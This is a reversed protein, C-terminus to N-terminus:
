LKIIIILGQVKPRLVDGDGVSDLAVTALPPWVPMAHLPGPSITINEVQFVAEPTAELSGLPDSQSRNQSRNQGVPGIHLPGIHLPGLSIIINEVESRSPSTRWRAARALPPGPFVAEPTAEPAGLHHHEGGGEAAHHM